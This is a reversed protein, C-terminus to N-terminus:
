VVKEFNDTNYNYVIGWNEKLDEKVHIPFCKFINYCKECSCAISSKFFRKCFKWHDKSILKLLYPNTIYLSMVESLEDIFDNNCYYNLYFRKTPFEKSYEEIINEYVKYQLFHTFEHIIIGFLTIDTVYGHYFIYENDEDNINKCNNPNVFITDQYGDLNPYYVGSEQISFDYTISLNFDLNNTQTFDEIFNIALMTEENPTQINVSIKDNIKEKKM